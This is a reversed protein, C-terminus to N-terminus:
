NCLGGLRSIYYANEAAKVLELMTWSFSLARRQLLMSSRRTWFDINGRFHMMMVLPTGSDRGLRRDALKIGNAVIYKTEATQQTTM